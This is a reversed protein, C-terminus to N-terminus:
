SFRAAGGSIELSAGTTFGSLPSALFAIAAAAEQTQGLRGLPIGMEDARESLWEDETQEPKGEAKFRREWHGSNIVGLLIANVRIRPALETSLSKILNQVGARAASTSVMQPAPQRALLANVVVISAYASEQMLPLFSRTPRIVSFFKSHLEDEWEKDLTSAFTGRKGEGANNILIDLRGQQARVSHALRDMDSQNTADAAQIILQEPGYGEEAFVAASQELREQRRACSFVVAGEQLLQRVTELGIGASGGTVVAIKGKLQLDM